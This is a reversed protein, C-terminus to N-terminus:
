RRRGRRWRGRSARRRSSWPQSRTWGMRDASGPTRSESRPTRDVSARARGVRAGGSTMGTFPDQHVCTSPRGDPEREIPAAGREDSRADPLIPPQDRGEAVPHQAAEELSRTARAARRVLSISSSTGRWASATSRRCSDPWPELWGVPRQERAPAAAAEPFPLWAQDYHGAVFPARSHDRREQGGGSRHAAPTTHPM